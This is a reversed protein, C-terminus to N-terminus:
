GLSEIPKLILQLRALNEWQGRKATIKKISPNLSEYIAGRNHSPYYIRFIPESYGTLKALVFDGPRITASLDFLLIDDQLLSYSNPRTMTRDPNRITFCSSGRNFKDFISSQGSSLIDKIERHTIQSLNDIHIPAISGRMQTKEDIIVQVTSPPKIFGNLLEETSVGFFKSFDNIHPVISYKGKEYANYTTQPKGMARAAALASGYGAAIRANVLNEARKLRMEDTESM